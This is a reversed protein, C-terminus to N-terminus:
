PGADVGTSTGGDGVPNVTVQQTFWAIDIEGDLGQEVTSPTMSRLFYTDIWRQVADRLEQKDALSLKCRQVAPVEPEKVMQIRYAIFDRFCKQAAFSSESPARIADDVAQNFGSEFTKLKEVTIPRISQRKAACAIIVATSSAAALLPLLVRARPNM